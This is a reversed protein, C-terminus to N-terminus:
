SVDSLSYISPHAIQATKLFVTAFIDSLALKIKSPKYIANDPYSFRCITRHIGKIKLWRFQFGELSFSWSSFGSDSSSSSSSSSSADSSDSSSTFGVLFLLPALEPPPLPLPRGLAVLDAGSSTLVM